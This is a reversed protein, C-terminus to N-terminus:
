DPVVAVKVGEGSAVFEIAEVVDSLAYSHTHLSKVDIVDFRIKVNEDSKKSLIYLEETKKSSDLGLARMKKECEGFSGTGFTRWEWRPVIAM